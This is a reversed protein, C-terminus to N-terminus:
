AVEVVRGSTYHRAVEAAEARDTFIRPQGDDGLVVDPTAYSNWEIRYAPRNTTNM